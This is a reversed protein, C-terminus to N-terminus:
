ANNIQSLLKKEAKEMRRANVAVDHTHGALHLCGHILLENTTQEINNKVQGAYNRMESECLYLEGITRKGAPEKFVFSLITTPKDKKRYKKNLSKIKNRSVFIISVEDPLKYSRSVLRVVNHLNKESSKSEGFTNVKM